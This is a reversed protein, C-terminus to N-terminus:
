EDLGVKLAQPIYDDCFNLGCAKGTGTGNLHMLHQSLLTLELLLTGIDLRLTVCCVGALKKEVM